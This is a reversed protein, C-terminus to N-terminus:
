KEPAINDAEDAFSVFNDDLGDNKEQYFPSTEMQGPFMSVSRFRGSGWEMAQKDEDSLFDINDLAHEAARADEQKWDRYIETLHEVRQKEPINKLLSLREEYEMHRSNESLIGLALWKESGEPLAAAYQKLEIENSRCCDRLINEKQEPAANKGLKALTNELGQDAEYSIKQKEEREKERKQELSQRWKQRDSEPLDLSDIWEGAEERGWNDTIFPELSELGITERIQPLYKKLAAGWEAGRENEFYANSSLLYLMTKGKPGLYESPIVGDFENKEAESPGPLSLAWALAGEMNDLCRFEAMTELITSSSDDSNLMNECFAWANEPSAHLWETLLKSKLEGLIFEDYKKGLETSNLFSWAQRPCHQGWYEMLAKLYEEENGGTAQFYEWDRAIDGTLRSRMEQARQRTRLSPICTERATLHPLAVSRRSSSSEAGTGKELGFGYHSAAYGAAAGALLATLFAYRGLFKNM